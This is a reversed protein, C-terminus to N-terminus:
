SKQEPNINNNAIKRDSSSVIQDAFQKMSQKASEAKEKDQEAQSNAKITAMEIEHEKIEGFYIALFRNGYSAQLHKSKMLRKGMWRCAREHYFSFCARRTLNQYQSPAMGIVESYWESLHVVDSKPDNDQDEMWQIFREGLLVVEEDTYHEPPRGHGRAFKNGKPPAM